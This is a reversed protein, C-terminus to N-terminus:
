KKKRKLEISSMFTIEFYTSPRFWIYPRSIWCHQAFFSSRKTSFGDVHFFSFPTMKTAWTSLRFSQEHQAYRFVIGKGIGPWNVNCYTHRGESGSPIKHSGLIMYWRKMGTCEEVNEAALPCCDLQYKGIFFRSIKCFFFSHHTIWLKWCDNLGGRSSVGM